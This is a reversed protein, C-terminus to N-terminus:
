LSRVTEAGASDMGTSSLSPQDTGIRQSGRQLTDPGQATPAYNPGTSPQAGGGGAGRLADYFRSQAQQDLLPIVQGIAQVGGSKVIRQALDNYDGTQMAKQLAAQNDPDQFLDRQQQQYQFDKAKYYKDPIAQLGKMLMDAYNGATAINPAGPMPTYDYAAM